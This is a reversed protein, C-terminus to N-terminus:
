EKSFTFEDHAIFRNSRKMFKKYIPHMVRKIIEVVVSKNCIDSVVKGQLVRKPM